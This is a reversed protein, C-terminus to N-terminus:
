NDEGISNFFIIFRWSVFAEIMMSPARSFLKFFISRSIGLFLNTTMVPKLPLPLLEKKESKIKDFEAEFEMMCERQLEVQKQLEKNKGANLDKGLDNIGVIIGSIVVVSVAANIYFKRSSNRALKGFAAGCKSCFQQGAKNRASCVHCKM